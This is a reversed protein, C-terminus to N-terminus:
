SAFIQRRSFTKDVPHGIARLPTPHRTRAELAPGLDSLLEDTDKGALGVLADSFPFPDAGVSQGQGGTHYAGVVLCAIAHEDGVVGAVNRWARAADSAHVGISAGHVSGVPKGAAARTRGPDHLLLKNGALSLCEGLDTPAYGEGLTAAM